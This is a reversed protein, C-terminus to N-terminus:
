TYGVGESMHSERLNKKDKQDIKKVMPKTKLITKAVFFNYKM